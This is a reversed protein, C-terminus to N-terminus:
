AFQGIPMIIGHQIHLEDINNCVTVAKNEGGFVFCPAVDFDMVAFLKKLEKENLKVSRVDEFSYLLVAEFNPSVIQTSYDFESSSSGNTASIKEPGFVVEQFNWLQKLLDHHFTKGEIFECEEPNLDHFDQLSQKVLCVGNSAYVYGNHIKAYRLSERTEDTTLIKHLPTKFGGIKKNNKM